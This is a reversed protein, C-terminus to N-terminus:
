VAHLWGVCYFRDLLYEGNIYVCVPRTGVFLGNMNIKHRIRKNVSVVVAFIVRRKLVNMTTLNFLYYSCRYYNNNIFCQTRHRGSTPLFANRIPLDLAGVRIKRALLVCMKNDRVARANCACNM